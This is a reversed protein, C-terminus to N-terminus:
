STVGGKGPDDGASFEKMEFEVDTDLMKGAEGATM